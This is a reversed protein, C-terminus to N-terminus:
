SSCHIVKELDPEQVLQTNVTTYKAVIVLSHVRVPFVWAEVLKITYCLCLIKLSAQSKSLRQCPAKRHAGTPLKEKKANGHPPIIVLM